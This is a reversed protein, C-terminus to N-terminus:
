QQKQQVRTVEMQQSTTPEDIMKESDAMPPQQSELAKKRLQDHKLASDWEIKKQRDKRIAPINECITEITIINERASTQHM